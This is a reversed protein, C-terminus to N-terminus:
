WWLLGSRVGRALLLGRQGREERRGEGGPRTEPCDAVRGKDAVRAGVGKLLESAEHALRARPQGRLLADLERRAMEARDGGIEKARARPTAGWVEAGFRRGERRARAEIEGRDGTLHEQAVPVRAAQTRRVLGGGGAQVVVDLAQGAAVGEVRAAAELEHHPVRVAVHGVRMAVDAGPEHDRPHAHLAAAVVADRHEVRGLGLHGGAVGEYEQQGQQYGHQVGGECWTRM